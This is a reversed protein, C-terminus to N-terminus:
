RCWSISISWRGVRSGYCLSGIASTACRVGTSKGTYPSPLKEEDPRQEQHMPLYLYKILISVATAGLSMYSRNPSLPYLLSSVPAAGYSSPKSKM